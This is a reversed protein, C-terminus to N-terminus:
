ATAARKSSTVGEFRGEGIVARIAELLRDAPRSLPRNQPLLLRAVIPVVPALPRIVLGAARAEATSFGDIVAVGSGARALACATATQSVQVAVVRRLGSAKFAEEVLAGLPQQRDFSILRHLALDAVSVAHLRALPHAPTMVCILAAECLDEAIVNAQEVPALVLGFDVRHDAVAAVAGHNPMTQLDVNVSGHQSQFRAVAAAAISNGLVPVAAFTVTGARVAQLDEALRNVADLASTARIIEPLLIRAEATPVLRGRQRLFLPFGLQEEVLQVVKTVAPQSIGLRTAAVTLSGAEIVLRLLDLHKANMVM